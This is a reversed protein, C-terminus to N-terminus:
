NQKDGTEHDNKCFRCFVKKCELCESDPFDAGCNSCLLQVVNPTKCDKVDTKRSASM